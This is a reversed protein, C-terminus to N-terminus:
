SVMHRQVGNDRPYIKLGIRCLVFAHQCLRLFYNMSSALVESRFTQSPRTKLTDM